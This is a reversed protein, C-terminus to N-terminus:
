KDLMYETLVKDLLNGIWVQEALRRKLKDMSKKATHVAPRSTVSTVSTTSLHRGGPGTKKQFFTVGQYSHM